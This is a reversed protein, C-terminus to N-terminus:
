FSLRAGTKGESPHHNRKKQNSATDHRDAPGNELKACRESVVTCLVFASPNVIEAIPRSRSSRLSTM